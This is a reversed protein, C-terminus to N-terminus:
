GRAERLLYLSTSVPALEVEFQKTNRAVVQDAFLDVVEGATRPLAFRRAGGSVTHVGLLERSAYLVDGDGSYIHAGAFRAVNRLLPAPLNPAAVYISTWDAFTRVAMGPRCSGESFVVQGLVTAGPDEVSFIPGLKSNTGWQLDQSLGKTIPHRYNTVHMLPGWPRESMGFRFGTLETMHELSLDDKVFGPAYIWLAVRGDRRLNRALAQRRAGDLRFANLFVYLKYPRLRGQVFDEMLYTDVPAGLHALGWLRQQFIGPVDLNNLSSEYFLSEDDVLVAVESAPTRDTALLRKSIQGFRRLLPSFAPERAADVSGSLWWVGQGRTMAGSFNRRLIAESEALSVAHGYTTEGGLHTRTDDEIIILKGHLRASEAPIMSPGDGGIGRFGYSYPSVLFDVDPSELVMRLGLHGSRQYTSYPSDPREAFFGGNWALELVYGYFAGALKKGGTAQKVTHCFDIVAEGSLEALCRFYDITRGELRPDRILYRKAYLQDAAPPVEATEFTVAAANWAKRLAAVDGGYRQRLWQRFHRRMPESYDGCLEHMSTEGKVWEGTHGAGVQIAVVRDLVGTESLAQVYARLFAKAEDRWVRSAFSQTYRRGNSHVELEEPHLKSWWDDAGVELQCRLHFMAEPDTDLIRGYRAKVTSFDYDPKVWEMGNGVDLAYIHIGAAAGKRAAEASPWAAATPASVWLSDYPAPQGNLFLTPTGGHPKVEATVARAPGKLVPLAALSLLERRTM